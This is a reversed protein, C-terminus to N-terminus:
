ADKHDSGVVGLVVVSLMDSRSVQHRINASTLRLPGTVIVPDPRVQARVTAGM